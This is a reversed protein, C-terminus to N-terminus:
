LSIVIPMSQITTNDGYVGPSPCTCQGPRATNNVAVLDNATHLNVPLHKTIDKNIAGHSQLSQDQLYTVISLRPINTTHTLMPCCFYLEKIPLILYM